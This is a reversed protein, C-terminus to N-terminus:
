WDVKVFKENEKLKRERYFLSDTFGSDAVFAAWFFLIEASYTNQDSQFHKSM